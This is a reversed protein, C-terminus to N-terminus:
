QVRLYINGIIPSHGPISPDFTQLLRIYRGLCFLNNNHDQKLLLFIIFHEFFFFLMIQNITLLTFIDPSILIYPSRTLSFSLSPWLPVLFLHILFLNLPLFCDFFPQFLSM